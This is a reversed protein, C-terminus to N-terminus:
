CRKDRKPKQILEKSFDLDIKIPPILFIGKTDKKIKFLGFDNM